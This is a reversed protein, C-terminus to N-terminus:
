HSRYNFWSSDEQGGDTANQAMVAHGTTGSGAFFDMVIDNKATSSLYSIWRALVEHDKPSDFVKAGFLDLM